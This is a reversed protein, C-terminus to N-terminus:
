KYSLFLFLFGNYTLMFLMTEHFIVINRFCFPLPLTAGLFYNQLDRDPKTSAHRCEVQPFVNNQNSIHSLGVECLYEIPSPSFMEDKKGEDSFM